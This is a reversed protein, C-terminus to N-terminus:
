IVVISNKCNSCIGEIEFQHSTVVFDHEMSMIRIANELVDDSIHSLTHCITCRFHHHHPSFLDTLEYRKKWGIHVVKVVEISIFTEITRYITVRDIDACANVIEKHSLPEDAAKLATFLKQRPVTSRLGNIKLLDNLDTMGNCYIM